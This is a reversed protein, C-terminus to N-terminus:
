SLFWQYLAEFDEPELSPIPDAEIQSSAMAASIEEALDGNVEDFTYAQPTPRVVWNLKNSPRSTKTKPELNTANM